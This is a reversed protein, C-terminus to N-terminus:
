GAPCVTIPTASSSAYWPDPASDGPVALESAAGPELTGAPVTFATGFRRLSVEAPRGKTRLVAGGPPLRFSTGEGPGGSIRRCRSAPANTPRLRLGLGDALTADVRERTAEPQARLEPLSYTPSGYARVAEIYGTAIDGTGNERLVSALLGTSLHEPVRGAGIQVSALDGRTASAVDRFQVSSNRLQAINTALGIAVLGYIALLAGRGIRVGRAAEVAVLLVAVTAPFLYRPSEPVRIPILVAAAGIVWLTAPIAMTAWMWRSVGGKWVRWGLAVLAAVAIVPGWIPQGSGTYEYGLGLLAAGVTALSNLGWSPIVLLNTIHITNESSGEANHSWVLWALYLLAPILFVWARRWRDRGLLILLAAAAVFPIGDSYTALSLSLLLCAGVDGVRDERELALLAAIGAALAFLVTFGNGSLVHNAASGYFLLVLTPALAPLSGIRRKAFAFFLGATLLLAAITLLRFPLYEAGFANFLAAYVVRTSLILHGNYPELADGLGLHPSTSFWSIEDITFTTDRGLWVGLAASLVMAAVLLIVVETDDLGRLVWSRAEAARSRLRMEMSAM